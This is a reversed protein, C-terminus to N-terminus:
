VELRWPKTSTGGAGCRGVRGILSEMRERMYPMMVMHAGGVYDERGHRRGLYRSCLKTTHEAGYMAVEEEEEM